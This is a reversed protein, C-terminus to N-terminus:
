NPSVVSTPSNEHDDDNNDDNDDVCDDDDDYDVDNYDDDVADGGDYDIKILEGRIDVKIIQASMWHRHIRMRMIMIKMMMMMTILLSYVNKEFDNPNNAVPKKHEDVEIVDLYRDGM